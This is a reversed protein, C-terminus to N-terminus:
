DEIKTEKVSVLEDRPKITVTVGDYSFKIVGGELPKIGAKAVLDRVKAKQAVEDRLISQREQVLEKYVRAEAIIPKANKPSVDILDMQGKVPKDKKKAM